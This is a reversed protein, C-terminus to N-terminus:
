PERAANKRWEERVIVPVAYNWSIKHHIRKHTEGMIGIKTCSPSFLITYFSKIYTGSELYVDSMGGKNSQTQMQDIQTFPSSLFVPGRSQLSTYTNVDENIRGVFQFQRDTSCFFTNMAKRKPKGFLSEGGFWDGGQSMAISILKTEKYYKLYADFVETLNNKVTFHNEPHEEKENIRYKFERYDDDLQLFYKYGINKAIDFCANRAYVICRRDKFNDAQDFKKSEELKDFVIVNDKGFIRYYEDATEDENDIIIFVPYKNGMRELTHYTIVNSPRGHTLIFICFDNNEM